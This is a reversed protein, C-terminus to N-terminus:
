RIILHRFFLLHVQLCCQQGMGTVRLRRMMLERAHVDRYRWFAVYLAVVAVTFIVTTVLGTWSDGALDQAGLLRQGLDAQHLLPYWLKLNYGHSPGSVRQGVLLGEDGHLQDSVLEWLHGEAYGGIRGDIGHVRMHGLLDILEDIVAASVEAAQLRRLGEYFSLELSHLHTDLLAHHHFDIHDEDRADIVLV